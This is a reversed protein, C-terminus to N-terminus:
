KDALEIWKVQQQDRQGVSHDGELEAGAKSQGKRRWVWWSLGVLMAVVVVVSVAVAVTEAEHGSSKGLDTPPPLIPDVVPVATQGFTVAFYNSSFDTVGGQKSITVNYQSLNVLQPFDDLNPLRCTVMSTSWVQVDACALMSFNTSVHRISRIAAGGTVNLNYGSLQLSDGPQCGTLFLAKSNNAMMGCGSISLIRPADLYDYPYTMFGNSMFSGWQSVLTASRMIYDRNTNSPLVCSITTDSTVSPASCNLYPRPPAYFTEFSLRSVQMGSRLLRNGAVTMTDNAMCRPVPFGFKPYFGGDDWCPLVHSLTPQATFGIAKPIVVRGEDTTIVIDYAVGPILEDGDDLTCVLENPTAWNSSSVTKSTSCEFGGVTVTVDFLYRGQINLSSQGPICDMYSTFSGNYTAPIGYVQFRTVAPPPLFAMTIFFPPAQWWDHVYEKLTVHLQEGSYHEALILFGLSDSLAITITSDDVLKTGATLGFFLTRSVPSLNVATILLQAISLQAFGSGKITLVDLEPVCNTTLLAQSTVECGSVSTVTPYNWPQISFM